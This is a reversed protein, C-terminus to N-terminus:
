LASSPAHLLNLCSVFVFDRSCLPLSAICGLSPWLWTHIIVPLVLFFIWFWYPSCSPRFFVQYDLLLFSLLHFSAFFFWPFHSAGCIVCSSSWTQWHGRCINLEMLICDECSCKKKRNQESICGWCRSSACVHVPPYQIFLIQIFTALCCTHFETDHLRRSLRWLWLHLM